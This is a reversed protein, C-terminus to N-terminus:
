KELNLHTPGSLYNGIPIQRGICQGRLTYTRSDAIRSSKTLSPAFSNAAVGHEQVSSSGSVFVIDDVYFEGTGSSAGMFTFEIERVKSFDSIGANKMTSLTIEDVVWNSSPMLSYFEAPGDPDTHIKLLITISGSLGKHAIRLKTAGSCNIPASGWNSVNLGFGDWSNSIAYNYKYCKTGEYMGTNVEGLTGTGKWTGTIKSTTGSYLAIDAAGAPIILLATFVLGAVAHTIRNKISPKM